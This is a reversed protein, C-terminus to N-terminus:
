HISIQLCGTEISSNKKITVLVSLILPKWLLCSGCDVELLWFCQSWAALFLQSTMRGSCTLCTQSDGEGAEINTYMRRRIQGKAWEVMATIVRISKHPHVQWDEKKHPFTQFWMKKPVSTLWITNKSIVDLQLDLRFLAMVAHYDYNVM